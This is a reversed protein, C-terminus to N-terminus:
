RSTIAPYRGFAIPQLCDVIYMYLCCTFSSGYTPFCIFILEIQVLFLAHLYMFQAHYNDAISESLGVRSGEDALDIEKVSGLV